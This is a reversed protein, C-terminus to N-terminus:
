KILYYRIWHSKEDKERVSNIKTGREKLVFIIGTLRTVQYKQIAEWSTISGFQHLHAEVQKIKSEFDLTAM